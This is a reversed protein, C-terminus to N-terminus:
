LTKKLKQNVKATVFIEERVKDLSLMKIINKKICNEYKRTGKELAIFRYYEKTDHTFMRITDSWGNIKVNMVYNCDCYNSAIKMQFSTIEFTDVNNPLARKISKLLRDTNCVINQYITM